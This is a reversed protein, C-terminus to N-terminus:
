SETYFLVNVYEVNVINKLRDFKMHSSEISINTINTYGLEETLFHPVWELFEETNLTYRISVDNSESNPVNMYFCNDPIYNKYVKISKEMLAEVSSVTFGFVLMLGLFLKKMFDGTFFTKLFYLVDDVFM